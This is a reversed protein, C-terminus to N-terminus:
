PSAHEKGDLIPPVGLRSLPQQGQGPFVRFIAGRQAPARRGALEVRM